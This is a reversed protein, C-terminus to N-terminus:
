SVKQCMGALHQCMAGRRNGSLHCSYVRGLLTTHSTILAQGQTTGLRLNHERIVRQEAERVGGADQHVLRADCEEGGGQRNALRSLCTLHWLM